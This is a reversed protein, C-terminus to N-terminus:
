DGRQGRTVLETARALGKLAGLRKPANTLARQFEEIALNPEDQALLLDGLQERAPVIPGPMVPLEEITDEEDAARLLLARADDPKGEAQALWASAEM